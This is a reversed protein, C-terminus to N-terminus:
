NMAAQEDVAYAYERTKKVGDGLFRVADSIEQQEQMLTQVQAKEIAAKKAARERMADARAQVEMKYEQREQTDAHGLFQKVQDGVAMVAHSLERQEQQEQMSIREQMLKLAATKAARKKMKDVQAQLLAAEYEKDERAAAHSLAKKVADGFSMVASSLEQHERVMTREDALKSDTAKAARKKMAQIKIQAMEELQQELNEDYRVQLVEHFSHPAEFCIASSAAFVLVPVAVLPLRARRRHFLQRASVPAM